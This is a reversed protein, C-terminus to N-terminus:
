MKKWFICMKLMSQDLNRSLIRKLHSCFTHQHAGLAQAEPRTGGVQGGGQWAVAYGGQIKM